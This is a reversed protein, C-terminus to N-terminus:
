KVEGQSLVVGWKHERGSNNSFLRGIRQIDSSIRNGSVRERLGEREVEAIDLLLCLTITRITNTTSAPISSLFSLTWPIDSWADDSYESILITLKLTALSRSHSVDLPVQIGEPHTKSPQFEFAELSDQSLSLLESVWTNDDPQLAEVSLRKLAHLQIGIAKLYVEDPRNPHSIDIDQSIHLTELAITRSSNPSFEIEDEIAEISSLHKLKSGCAGVLLAFPVHQISLADLSSSQCIKVIAGKTEAFIDRWSGCSFNRHFTFSVIQDSFRRGLAKPLAIDDKLWTCYAVGSNLETITLQTTYRALHPSAELLELLRKGPPKCHTDPPPGALIIHNFIIRQTPQLFCSSTLSLAKLLKEDDKTNLFSPISSLLELPLRPGPSM